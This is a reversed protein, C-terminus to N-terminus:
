LDIDNDLQVEVETFITPLEAALRERTVDKHVVEFEPPAVEVGHVQINWCLWRVLVEDGSPSKEWKPEDAVSVRLVAADLNHHDLAARIRQLLASRDVSTM